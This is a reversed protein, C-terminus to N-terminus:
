GSLRCCGRIARGLRSSTAPGPTPPGSKGVIGAVVSLRGAPTVEEIVDNGLSGEAIGGASNGSDAIYLDGQSDVALGSPEGLRSSTAPGPTPPGSKGVIGAVVSLRGAPTVEEIVDNGYDAAEDAIFLNDQPDVAVAEPDGLRSRTAPGPTPLGLKGLIGAVVSIQGAPPSRGSLLPRPTPSSCIARRTSRWEAQPGSIHAPQLFM